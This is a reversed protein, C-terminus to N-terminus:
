LEWKSNAGNFHELGISMLDFWDSQFIKLLDRAGICVKELLDPPLKALQYGDDDHSTETSEGFVIAEGVKGAATIAWHSGSHATVGYLETGDLRLYFESVHAGLAKCVIWHASEHVVGLHWNWELEDPTM